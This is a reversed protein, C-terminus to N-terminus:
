KVTISNAIQEFYPSDDMDKHISLFVIMMRLARVVQPDNGVADRSLTINPLKQNPDWHDPIPLGQETYITNREEHIRFDLGRYFYWYVQPDLAGAIAAYEDAQAEKLRYAEQEQPSKALGFLEWFHSIGQHRYALHGIEHGIVWLATSSALASTLGEFMQKMEPTDLSGSAQVHEGPRKALSQFSIIWNANCVIINLFGAYACTKINTFRRKFDKSIFYVNLYDAAPPSNITIGRIHHGFKHNALWVAAQIYKDLLLDIPRLPDDNSGVGIKPLSLAGLNKYELLVDVVAQEQSSSPEALEPGKEQAQSSTLGAGSYFGALLLIGLLIMVPSNMRAM